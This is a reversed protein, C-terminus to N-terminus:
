AKAGPRAGTLLLAAPSLVLSLLIGLGTTIGMARLAGHSALALTGFVFVTTFCAVVLSVLTAEFRKPEGASDVLFIGYDVGMGMVMILSVVHILNAPEGLWGLAAFVLGGTLLSPCLAALLPRLRRYRLALAGAVLLSGLAIQRLTAARFSGYFSELFRNQDFIRVGPLDGIAEAIEDESDVAQLYTLTATRGDLEFFLPRLLPALPSDRLHEVTLPDPAEGRLHRAFPATAEPRFGAAGFARALREPLDPVAALAAWNREQLARPWVLGEISRVGGLTGDDVLPQLRRRVDLAQGLSAEADDALGVVVRSADFRSVRARVRADEAVLEPSFSALSSLDDNWRLMPLGTALVGVVGAAGVGLAGRRRAVAAVAAALASGIRASRETAPPADELLVPLAVLTTLLAVGIGVVAFFAVERLGPFATLGLGLFSAATTGAGLCLTPRLLRAVERPDARRDHACHNLLHIPYDIAVGVLSAGFAITLGDLRGFWVVGLTLASLIGVLGPLVALGFVSLRRFFLLFIGAVGLFSVSGILAVDGRIRREVDVAFLGVGSREVSLDPAQERLRAVSADLHAMLDAQAGSAFASDRTAVLVVAWGGDNSVFRDGETGLAAPEARMRGVMREFAGLPDEPIVRKLLPGAPGALQQRLRSAREALAADETLRPIEREPERTMLLHRRPFYLEYLNRLFEGDVGSRAWAVGEHAALDAELERAETFAPRGDRSLTVVLTRSLESDTLLRSLVAAEGEGVPLFNSIDTGVRIRWACFAVMLVVLGLLGLRVQRATM